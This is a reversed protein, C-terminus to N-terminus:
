KYYFPFKKFTDDLPFFNAVGKEIHTEGLYYIDWSKLKM